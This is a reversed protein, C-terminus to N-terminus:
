SVRSRSGLREMGDRALQRQEADRTYLEAHTIASHGLIAMIQRTTAGGEALLKGLTKRLGHLTHGPGIGAQSTWSQMRMGLAKQSFPRGYQTVLVTEAVRPAADLADILEQHMPIWVAKGTKQQVISSAQAELDSWKIVALDGRRHGQYLALAYATRPTSGLPWKREFKQRAEVPWSKWGKYGPRFKVRYTPDQEIWEADLAVGTLRRLLRLIHAATHPTTAWRALIERIHRRKLEDVPLDGYRLSGQDDIKTCLFREALDTQHEKSIPALNQWEITNIAM